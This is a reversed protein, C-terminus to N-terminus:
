KFWRWVIIIALCDLGIICISHYLNPGIEIM